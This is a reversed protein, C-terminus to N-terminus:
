TGTLITVKGESNSGCMGTLDSGLVGRTAPHDWSSSHAKTPIFTLRVWM